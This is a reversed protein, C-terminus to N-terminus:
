EPRRARVNYTNGRIEESVVEFGMANLRGRIDEPAYPQVLIGKRMGWANIREAISKLPERGTPFTLVNAALTAGRKMVRFIERMGADPDPLCHIANAVNVSDFSEPPYPLAAVDAHELEVDRRSGFRRYAGALMPEAYDIGVLHVDPLDKRKRWNLAISALTGTGIAVELHRGRMNTGFFRVQSALSSRYAFTLIFFGRLDYWWPASSYARAIHDRDVAPREGPYAPEPPSM